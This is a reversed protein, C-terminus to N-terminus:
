CRFSRHLSLPQREPPSSRRQRSRFSNKCLRLTFTVPSWAVARPAALSAQADTNVSMNHWPRTHSMAQHYQRAAQSPVTGANSCYCSQLRECIAARVKAITVPQARLARSRQTVRAGARNFATMSPMVAEFLPRRLTPARWALHSQVPVASFHQFLFSSRWVL